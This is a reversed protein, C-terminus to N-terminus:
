GLYRNVCLMKKVRRACRIHERCFMASEELFNDKIAAISLRQKLLAIASLFAM